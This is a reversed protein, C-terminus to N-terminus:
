KYKRGLMNANCYPCFDYAPRGEIETVRTLSGCHSCIYRNDYASKIWHAPAMEMIRGEKELKEYHHLKYLIDETTVGEAPALIGHFDRVLQKNHKTNRIM